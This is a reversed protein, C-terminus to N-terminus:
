IVWSFYCNSCQHTKNLNPRLTSDLHIRGVSAYDSLDSMFELRNNNLYLNLLKIKIKEEEETHQNTYFHFSNLQNSHLNILFIKVGTLDLSITKFHNNSLDIMKLSTLQSFVDSDISNLLNHSLYLSYLSNLNRFTHSQIHTLKNHELHLIGLM